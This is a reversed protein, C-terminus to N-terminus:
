KSKKDAEEFLDAISSISNKNEDASGASEETAENEEVNKAANKKKKFIFLLVISGIAFLWGIVLVIVLLAVPIDNGDQSEGSSNSVGEGTTAQSAVEIASAGDGLISQYYLVEAAKIVEETINGDVTLNNEHQLKKVIAITDEDLIGTIGDDSLGYDTYIFIWQIWKIGEGEDGASYTDTPKKYPNSTVAYDVTEGEAIDVETTESETTEITPETTASTTTTTAAPVPIILGPLDSTTQPPAVTTQQTTDGFVGGLLGGLNGGLGGLVDGVGGFADGMGGVVDGFSGVTDGFNEVADSVSHGLSDGLGSPDVGLSEAVGGLINGIGGGINTTSEQKEAYYVKATATIVDTKETGNVCFITLCVSLAVIVSCLATIKKKM